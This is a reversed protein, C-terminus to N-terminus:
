SCLYSVYSCHDPRKAKDRLAHHLTQTPITIAPSSTMLSGKREEQSSMLLIEKPRRSQACRRNGVLCKRRAQITSWYHQPIRMSCYCYVSIGSRFFTRSPKGISNCGRPIATRAEESLEGFLNRTATDHRLTTLNDHRTGPQPLGYFSLGSDTPKPCGAYTCAEHSTPVVTLFRNLHRLSPLVVASAAVAFLMALMGAM